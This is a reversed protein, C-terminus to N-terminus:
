RSRATKSRSGTSMCSPLFINGGSLFSKPAIATKEAVGMDVAAVVPKDQFSETGFFLLTDTRFIMGDENRTLGGRQFSIFALIKMLEGGNDGAVWVDIVGPRDKLLLCQGPMDASPLFIM